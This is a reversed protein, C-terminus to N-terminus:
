DAVRILDMTQLVCLSFFTVVNSSTPLNKTIKLWQLIRFNWNEEYSFDYCSHASPQEDFIRPPTM